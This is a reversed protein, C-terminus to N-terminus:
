VDQKATKTTSYHVSKERYHAESSKGLRRSPFGSSSNHHWEPAPIFSLKEAKGTEAQAALLQPYMSKSFAQEREPLAETILSAAVEQNLGDDGASVAPTEEIDELQSLTNRAYTTGARFGAECSRQAM